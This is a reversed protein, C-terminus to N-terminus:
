RKMHSAGRQSVQARDGYVLVAMSGDDQPLFCVGASNRRFQAIEAQDFVAATVGLRALSAGLLLALESNRRPATADSHEGAVLAAARSVTQTAM